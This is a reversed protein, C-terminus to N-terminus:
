RCHTDRGVWKACFYGTGHWGSFGHQDVHAAEMYIGKGDLFGSRTLDNQSSGVMIYLHWFHITVLVGAAAPNCSMPSPYGDCKGKPGLCLGLGLKSRMDANIDVAGYYLVRASGPGPLPFRYRRTMRKLWLTTTGSAGPKRGGTHSIIESTNHFTIKYTGERLLGWDPPTTRSPMRRVCTTGCGGIVACALAIVIVKHSPALVSSGQDPQHVLRLM